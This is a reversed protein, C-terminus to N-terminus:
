EVLFSLDFPVPDYITIGGFVMFMSRSPLNLLDMWCMTLLAKTLVDIAWVVGSINTQETENPTVAM